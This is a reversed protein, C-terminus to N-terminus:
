DLVRGNKVRLRIRTTNDFNALPDGELVLFSAEYGTALRGLRRAPFISQSTARTWLELLERNSFIGLSRLQALEALVGKRSDGSGIAMAVNNRRLTRLNEVITDRIVDEGRAVASGVTTVVVIDRRAALKADADTIRFRGNTYPALDSGEARFGPVHTIEDVGAAVAQHFDAATEVHTSVRLGATHARRVIEPLLRPDLGKWANKAPDNKRQAYEESYLLYTKVFDPKAALLLPWKRELEALTEVQQAGAPYGDTGTFGGTAFVADISGPRGVLARPAPSRLPGPNKVYFVGNRLYERIREPLADSDEVNHNHAEGFPPIVYAGKLDVDRADPPRRTTLVGSTTCFTRPHFTRGGFWRGNTFCISQAEASWSALLLVITAVRM